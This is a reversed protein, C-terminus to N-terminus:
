INVVPTTNPGGSVIKHSTQPVVTQFIPLDKNRPNPKLYVFLCVMDQQAPSWGTKFVMGKGLSVSFNLFVKMDQGTDLQALHAQMAFSNFAKALATAILVSDLTSHVGVEPAPVPHKKQQNKSAGAYAINSERHKEDVILANVRAKQFLPSAALEGETAHKSSHARPGSESSVPNQLAKHIEQFTWNTRAYPM